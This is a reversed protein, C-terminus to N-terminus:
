LDTPTANRLTRRRGWRPLKLKRDSAGGTGDRPQQGFCGADATPRSEAVGWGLKYLRLPEGEPIASEFRWAEEAEIPGRMAALQDAIVAAIRPAQKVLRWAEPTMTPYTLESVPATVPKPKNPM